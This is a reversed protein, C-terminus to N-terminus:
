PPKKKKKDSTKKTQAPGGRDGDKWGCEKSGDWLWLAIRECLGTEKGNRRSRTLRQSCIADWRLGAKEDWRHFPTITMHGNAM